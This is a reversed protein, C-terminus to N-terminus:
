DKHQFTKSVEINCVFIMQDGYSLRIASKLTLEFNEHKSFNVTKTTMRINNEHLSKKELALKKKQQKCIEITNEHEQYSAQKSAWANEQGSPQAREEM